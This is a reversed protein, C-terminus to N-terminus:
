RVLLFASGAQRIQPVRVLSHFHLKQARSLFNTTERPISLACSSIARAKGFVAMIKDKKIFLELGLFPMYFILNHEIVLDMISSNFDNIIKSYTTSDINTKYKQKYFKFYDSTNYDAKLKHIREM